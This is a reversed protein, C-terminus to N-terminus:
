PAADSAQIAMWENFNMSYCKFIHLATESTGPGGVHGKHERLAAELEDAGRKKGCSRPAVVASMRARAAPAAAM